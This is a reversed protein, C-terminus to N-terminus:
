GDGQEAQTAHFGHVWWLLVVYLVPIAQAVWWFHALSKAPHAWVWVLAGLTVSITLALALWAKATPRAIDRDHPIQV